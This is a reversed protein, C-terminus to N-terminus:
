SRFPHFRLPSYPNADIKTPKEDIIDALLECSGFGLAWGKSGHGTIAFLNSILTKGIIPVDDACVPRLGSFYEAKDMQLFDSKYMEVTSEMTKPCDETEFKWGFGVATVGGSIRALNPKLPCMLSGHDPSYVNM